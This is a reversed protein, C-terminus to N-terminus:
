FPLAVSMEAKFPGEESCTCCPGGARGGAAAEPRQKRLCGSVHKGVLSCPRSNAMERQGGRGAEELQAPELGDAEVQVEVRSGRLLGSAMHAQGVQGLGDRPGNRGPRTVVRLRPSESSPSLLKPESARYAVCARHSNGPETSAELRAWPPSHGGLRSSRLGQIGRPEAM